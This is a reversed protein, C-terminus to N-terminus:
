ATLDQLTTNVLRSRWLRIRRIYGNLYDAGRHGIRLQTVVPLTVSTDLASLTGNLASIVDNTTYTVALKTTTGAVAAAHNNSFQAVTATTISVNAAGTSGVAFLGIRNTSPTADDLQAAIQLGTPKVYLLSYEAVLAGATSSYWPGLTTITAVDAARTVTSGVTVIPSSAFSGLELQVNTCSGSVTLTLAGATPTFTLTVRNAAGTGVLPGATSTGTLTITGTGFFSLTHAAATVTVSQTVGTASNLFLNTRAEEILLGKAALTVPDYDFRPTNIAYSTLTGASNYAWGASARTFTVRSDLSGGLFNLDLAPRTGGGGRYSIGLGLGLM